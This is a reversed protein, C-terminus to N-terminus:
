SLRRNVRRAIRAARSRRRRELRRTALPRKTLVSTQPGSPLQEYRQAAVTRIDSM